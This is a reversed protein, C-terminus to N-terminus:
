HALLIEIMKVAAKGEGYDTIKKGKGTNGMAAVIADARAGTIQNWGADVTETWETEGRLTICPTGHFCAEKQMGGSDTLIVKANIELSIMDLFSVPPIIRVDPNKPAIGFQKMMKETRPHIPFILPYNRGAIRDFASIIEVLNERNDTNEQRHITAVCFKTLQMRELIDSQKSALDGFLLSADYMIDGTHYVGNYINEVKLNLVASQTPAFLLASVHDTLIRNIEEPMSKNHSRLGAEVHCVPIGLKVAALAGALTSNTDGYVLVLDPTEAMIQKEIGIIMEGTM